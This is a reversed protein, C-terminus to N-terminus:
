RSCKETLLIMIQKIKKSLEVPWYTRIEDLHINHKTFTRMVQHSDSGGSYMLIIYDFSERIHEAHLKYLTDLSLNPEISWDLKSFIEDQFWFQINPIPDNLELAKELVEQKNVFFQNNYIFYGYENYFPIKYPSSQIIEMPM